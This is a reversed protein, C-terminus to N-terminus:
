LSGRIRDRSIVKILDQLCDIGSQINIFHLRKVGCVHIVFFLGGGADRGVLDGHLPCEVHCRSRQRM